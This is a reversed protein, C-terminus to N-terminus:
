SRQENNGSNARTYADLANNLQEMGRAGTIVTRPAGINAQYQNQALGFAERLRAIQNEDFNVPVSTESFTFDAREVTPRYVPNAQWLAQNFGPTSNHLHPDVFEFTRPDDFEQAVKVGVDILEKDVTDEITTLVKNFRRIKLVEKNEM